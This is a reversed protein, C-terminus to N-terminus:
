SLASSLGNQPAVMYNPNCYLIQKALLYQSLRNSIAVYATYPGEIAQWHKEEVVLTQYKQNRITHSVKGWFASALKTSLRYLQAAHSDAGLFPTRDGPLDLITLSVVCDKGCDLIFPRADKLSLWDRSVFALVAIFIM